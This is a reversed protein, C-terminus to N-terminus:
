DEGVQLLVVFYAGNGGAVVGDFTFGTVPDWGGGRQNTWWSATPGLIHVIRTVADRAVERDKLAHRPRVLDDAALATMAEVAAEATLPVLAAEIRAGDPAEAGPPHIEAVLEHVQEALGAPGDGAAGRVPWRGYRVCVVPKGALSKLLRGLEVLSEDRM